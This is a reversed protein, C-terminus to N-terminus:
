LAASGRATASADSMDGFSAAILMGLGGLLVDRKQIRYDYRFALGAALILLTAGFFVANILAGLWEDGPVVSRALHLGKAVSMLGWAMLLYEFFRVRHFSYLYGFIMFQLTLALCSAFSLAASTTM